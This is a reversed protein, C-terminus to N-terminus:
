GRLSFPLFRRSFGCTHYRLRFFEYPFSAPDARYFARFIMIEMFGWAFQTAVGALAAARYQLGM